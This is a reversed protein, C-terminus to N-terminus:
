HVGGSINVREALWAATLRLARRAPFPQARELRRLAASSRQRTRGRPADGCPWRQTVIRPLPMRNGASRAERLAGATPAQGRPPARFPDIDSAPYV